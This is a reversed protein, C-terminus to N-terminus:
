NVRAHGGLLGVELEPALAEPAKERSKRDLWNVQTQVTLRLQRSSTAIVASLTRMQNSLETFAKSGPKVTAFSDSVEDAKVINECHIRLIRVCNADFWDIPKSAVIERFIRRAKASMGPPPKPFDKGARFFSASMEEASQRPM